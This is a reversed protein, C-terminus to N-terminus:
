TGVSLNKNSSSVTRPSMKKSLIQGDIWPCAFLQQFFIQGIFFCLTMFGVHIILHVETGGGVGVLLFNLAICQANSHRRLHLVDEFTHPLNNFCRALSLMSVKTLFKALTHELHELQRCM